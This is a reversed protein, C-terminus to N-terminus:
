YGLCQLHAISIRIFTKFTSQHIEQIVSEFCHLRSGPPRFEKKGKAAYHAVVDHVDTNSSLDREIYNYLSSLASFRDESM